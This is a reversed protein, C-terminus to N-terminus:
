RVYTLSQKPKKTAYIRHIQMVQHICIKALDSTLM